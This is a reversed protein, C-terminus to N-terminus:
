KDNRMNRFIGKCTKVFGFKIYLFSLFSVAVFLAFSWPHSFSWNWVRLWAPGDWFLVLGIGVAFCACVLVSGAAMDKALKIKENKEETVADGLREMATNVMEAGMVLAFTLLLVAYQTRTFEFFLSFVFVYLAAVTHIRMNRERELCAFIGHFAYVFSKYLRKKGKNM